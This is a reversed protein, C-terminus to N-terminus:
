PTKGQYLIFTQEAPDRAAIARVKQWNDSATGKNPFKGVCQAVSVGNTDLVWWRWENEGTHEYIIYPQLVVTTQAFTVYCILTFVVAFLAGFAAGTLFKDLWRITKM